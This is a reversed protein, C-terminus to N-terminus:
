ESSVPVKSNLWEVAEQENSFIRFNGGPQISLVTDVLDAVRPNNILVAAYVLSAKPHSKLRLATKLAFISISKLKRLDYIRKNLETTEALLAFAHTQWETVTDVSTDEAEYVLIHDPRWYSRLASKSM